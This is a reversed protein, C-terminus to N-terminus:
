QKVQIQTVMETEMRTMNSMQGKRVDKMEIRRQKRLEKLFENHAGLVIKAKEPSEAMYRIANATTPLAFHPVLEPMPPTQPHLVSILM